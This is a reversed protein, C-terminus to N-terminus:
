PKLQNKFIQLLNQVHILQEQCTHLEKATKTQSYRQEIAKAEKPRQSELYSKTNLELQKIQRNQEQVQDLASLIREKLLANQKSLDILGVVSSALGIVLVAIAILSYPIM